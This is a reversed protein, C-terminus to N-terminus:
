ILFSCSFLSYNHTLTSHTLTHTHTRTHALLLVVQVLIDSLHTDRARQRVANNLEQIYWSGKKTNRMAATGACMVPTVTCLDSRHFILDVVCLLRHACVCVCAPVCVSTCAHVCVCVCIHVCACVCLHARMCVCVSTCVHVCVCVCIHACACVCM